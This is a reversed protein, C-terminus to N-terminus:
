RNTLKDGEVTSDEKVIEFELIYVCDLINVINELNSKTEKKNSYAYVYYKKLLEKSFNEDFIKCLDNYTDIIYTGYVNFMSELVNNLKKDLLKVNHKLKHIKIGTVKADKIKTKIVEKKFQAIETKNHNMKMYDSLSMTKLMQIVQNKINKINFTEDTKTKPIFSQCLINKKLPRGVNPFYVFDDENNYIPDLITFEFIPLVIKETMTVKAKDALSESL